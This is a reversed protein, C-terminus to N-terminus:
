NETPAKELHDVVITDKAVKRTELRLGASEVMSAFGEQVLQQFPVGPRAPEQDITFTYIGDLGTEDVMQLGGFSNMVPFLATIKGTVSQRMGGGPLPTAKFSPPTNDPLRPLKMGNKGVTLFTLPYDRSEHHYALKFREALMVQVMEPVQEAKAGEPLTAQVDFVQDRAFDPAAVQQLPVRFAYNVMFLLPYASFAARAGDIKIGFARTGAQIEPPSPRSVARISVVEFALSARAGQPQGGVQVISFLCLLFYRKM